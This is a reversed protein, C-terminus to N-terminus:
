GSRRAVALLYESDIRLTGDEAANWEAALAVSERRLAEWDEDSLQERMAVWPGANEAFFEWLGDVSAFAFPVTRREFSVSAALDGLRERVVEERGWEFPRPVGEPPHQYRATVAQARGFYGEPTWSTLGVTGGPRVVRSMEAAAVEPRPAFIAGFCSAVCEFSDDAFPLAEVDAEVWEVDLGDAETRARGQEILHPTLDSAVVMAGEEAALVAVNGTGAGVDLVEQGASIACADVLVRAAPALIEALPEYHGRTWAERTNAKLRDPDV